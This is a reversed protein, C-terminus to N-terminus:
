FIQVFFVKLIHIRGEAFPSNLSLSSTERGLGEGMGIRIACFFLKVLFSSNEM